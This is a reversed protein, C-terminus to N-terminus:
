LRPLRGRFSSSILRGARIGPLESLFPQYSLCRNKLFDQYRKKTSGRDHHADSLEDWRMIRPQRYNEMHSIHGAGRLQFKLLIRDVSTIKAKELVEIITVSDSWNVILTTSLCRQHFQKLPLPYIYIYIYIHTHTYTHTHTHTHPM